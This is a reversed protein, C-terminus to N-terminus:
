GVTKKQALFFLVQILFHNSNQYQLFCPNEQQQKHIIVLLVKWLMTYLDTETTQTKNHDTIHTLRNEPKLISVGLWLWHMNQGRLLLVGRRLGSWSSLGKFHLLDSNKHVAVIYQALHNHLKSDVPSTDRIKFHPSQVPYRSSINCFLSLEDDAFYHMQCLLLSWIQNRYSAFGSLQHVYWCIM